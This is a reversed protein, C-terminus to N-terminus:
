TNEVLKPYKEPTGSFNTIFGSIKSEESNDCFRGSDGSFCDM